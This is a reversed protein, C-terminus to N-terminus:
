LSEHPEEEDRLGKTTLWPDAGFMSKKPKFLEEQTPKEFYQHFSKPLRHYDVEQIFHTLDVSNYTNWFLVMSDRLGQRQLWHLGGGLAKGTYTTDLSIGEFEKMQQVIRVGLETFAAYGNGLYDELLIVDDSSVRFEPISPDAKRMFDCLHNIMSVLRNVSYMAVRVAIVKTKMGTLRCGAELGVVTGMTGAPAIIYDPEPMVGEDVQQKLEFVANVFGMNGLPSSAGPPIFYPKNGLLFHKLFQHAVAFYLLSMSPAYHLDVGYYLDLLLNRRVYNANPQNMVAGVVKFGAQKGHIGSALVQNSGVGGTTILTKRGKRKADALVFELKRVKNGGYLNSSQDDRKMYLQPFGEAEGFAELKQIPTPFAGLEMWPLRELLPYAEFILPRLLM